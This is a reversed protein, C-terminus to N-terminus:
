DLNAVLNERNQSAVIPTETRAFNYCLRSGSGMMKIAMALVYAM